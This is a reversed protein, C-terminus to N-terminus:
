SALQYARKLWLLVKQNLDELKSVHLTYVFREPSPQTIKVITPDNLNRDGVLEVLLHRKRVHISCFQTRRQLEIGNRVSNVKVPGFKEIQAVMKKFLKHVRPESEQFHLELPFVECSHIQGVRSFSRM